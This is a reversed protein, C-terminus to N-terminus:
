QYVTFHQPISDNFTINLLQPTDSGDRIIKFTVTDGSRVTLLFESLQYQRTFVVEEEDGKKASKIIDGVKFQESAPYNGDLVKTVWFEEVISLEDNEAWVAKSSIVETNIGLTAREVWRKGSDRINDYVAKVQNIPLAYGVNDTTTQVNKANVIGILEGATNFIGGGSNGSNIAASTRMVRYQVSDVRGDRPNVDRGDLAEITIYESAVSLVGETVSIGEGAPNGIVFTEEGLELSESDGWIAATVGQQFSKAGEVKLVAIDYDMAGGVYTAKVADEDGTLTDFKNMSGYPYIYLDDIIGKTSDYVVHYNTIIYANGAQSNLEVIVGSGASAVYGRQQASYYRSYVSVVSTVNKAITATDNEAPMQVNLAACFEMFTGTYGNAKAAEYLGQATLDEGNEGDAGRLSRLWEEETGVFGNKVALEYATLSQGDCGVGSFAFLVVSCVTLIGKAIKKM